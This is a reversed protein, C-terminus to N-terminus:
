RQIYPEHLKWAVVNKIIDYWKDMWKYGDFYGVTYELTDTMYAVEMRKMYVCCEEENHGRWEKEEPLREEVPIWDNEEKLEEIRDPDLGTDEYDKLRWLATYLREYTKKDIVAGEYLNEWKVGKLSWNGQDDHNTLRM